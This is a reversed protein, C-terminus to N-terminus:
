MKELIITVPGDNLLSVEMEKGFEGTFVPKGLYFSMRENFLQYLPKALNGPLAETFSPRNGDKLDGYLTFQSVSLIDYNKEKISLNLKGTEDPFIRLKSIKSALYDITELTDTHTFGVFLLIGSGIQSILIDNITVSAQKVRQCVIKLILL